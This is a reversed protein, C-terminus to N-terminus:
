EVSASLLQVLPDAPPTPSVVPTGRPEPTARTAILRPVPALPPPTPATRALMPAALPPAPGVHPRIPAVHPRTRAMLPPPQHLPQSPMQPTESDRLSTAHPLGPSSNAKHPIAALVENRLRDHWTGRHAADTNRLYDRATPPLPLVTCQMGLRIAASLAKVTQPLLGNRLGKLLYAAIRPSLSLWSDGYKRGIYLRNRVHQFWRKDSWAVRHEGSVKHRIVLDGRYCIRWGASIARLAFDFEEWCFFLAEDYGGTTDWTARRIAHGAGVFTATEFTEASRRLLRSPYGWSSVDDMGTEHTVIRCAVVGLTPDADFASAAQSLMDPTSFEADNDLAAIIRGHGFATALNRGGPVGLNRWAALLTVDSCTEVHAILKRLADSRSGQDLVLVHRTVGCQARASDIAACTDQARDLALIIIDVDYDSTPATRAGALHRALHPGDVAGKWSGRRNVISAERAEQRYEIKDTIRRPIPRVPTGSPHVSSAPKMAEPTM